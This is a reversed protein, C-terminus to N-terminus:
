MEKLLQVIYYIPNKELKNTLLKIYFLNNKYKFQFEKSIKISKLFLDQYNIDKSKEKSFVIEVCNSKQDVNIVDLKNALKEFWEEYMYILMSESINGFRDELEKKVEELKEYSNIENIKNHIEIKLDDEVVYEDTIHTEVDFLPMLGPEEEVVKEGKLRAVEKNLIKFYLDIGIADVFGAQEKGLIDGSGRISLDKNAIDFGSGLKTYDKIVKLRKMAAETLVKDKNYMFYSYALKDSRGVRGRLQYLQSLGLRDSDLAILTNVNPMDIGNEIITTCLLVDYEYNIFKLITDELQNSDMRGHAYAIKADPILKKLRNYQREINFIKNNLVFVQGNRSMEKYIINKILNDNEEIVYTQVPLRNEPPTDIISLDKLGVLTMQLTRPIPTATLTLIDINAYSKKIKEKHMVGFKQEEDIILLGLDKPEIDDSLARHTGIVFDITKNKLQSVIEEQKKKAVFRNLLGIKIPYNKFRECAVEYVQNSLLTTPCLYLVQKSDCIAKFIARLAVETKGYGVDGCLMRDMALLSEMDKKIEVLSKKQGDTLEYMFESEFMLQLATDPRFKFGNIMKRQAQTLIIERSIIELNKRVREKTKLWESGGLSNIKPVAGYKGTYKSILSIKEVPIYLKDSRAYLIELYDKKLGKKTLTKIGNYIGIGYIDHVVYDGMDLLSINNLKSVGKLSSKIKKISSKKSFIDNETIFIYNQYIFGENMSKEIINIKKDYINNEDTLLYDIDLYNQIRKINEKKLCLIVTKNNKISTNLFENIKVFNDSFNEIPKVEFNIIKIDKDIISTDFSLYHISNDIYLDNFDFMYDTIKKNNDFEFIDEILRNYNHKIQNIDKYIVVRDSFYDLLSSKDDESENFPKLYFDTINKISKQTDVDFYRISEIEDGFFEIRIPNEEFSLFIDLIFGRVAIDGTKLVLVEKNYGMDVIDNILENKNIKDGVKLRKIKKQYNLLSTVYKLYGELHTLVIQHSDTSLKDLVELRKSLYEDSIAVAQTTLFDDVPFLLANNNYTSIYNYIKNAEFLTPMVILIGSDIKKYLENIALAFFEDTISAIGMNNKLVNSTLKEFINM